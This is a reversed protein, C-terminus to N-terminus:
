NLNRVPCPKGRIQYNCDGWANCWVGCIVKDEALSPHSLNFPLPQNVPLKKAMLSKAIDYVDRFASNTYRVLRRLDCEKAAQQVISEFRVSGAFHLTFGIEHQLYKNLLRFDAAYQRDRVQNFIVHLNFSDAIRQLIEAAPLNMNYLQQLAQYVLPSKDEKPLFEVKEDHALSKLAVDVKRKVVTKVFKSLNELSPIEPTSVILNVDATLFFDLEHYDTRPGFDLLVYDADLNRLARIFAIRRMINSVFAHYGHEPATIIRINAFSTPIAAASLGQNKDLLRWINPSPYKLSFLEKLNAGYFDADVVVVRKQVSALALAMMATIMSKGVGGKGGAIAWLKARRLYGNNRIFPQMGEMYGAFVKRKGGASIVDNPYLLGQLGWLALAYSSIPGIRQKNHEILWLRM